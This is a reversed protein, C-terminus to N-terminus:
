LLGNGRHDGTRQSFKKAFFDKPNKEANARTVGAGGFERLVEERHQRQIEEDMRTELYGGASNAMELTLKKTKENEVTLKKVQLTLEQNSEMLKKTQVVLSNFQDEKRKMEALVMDLKRNTEVADASTSASAMKGVADQNFNALERSMATKIIDM